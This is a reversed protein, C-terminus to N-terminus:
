GPPVGREQRGTGGGTLVQRKTNRQPARGRCERKWPPSHTKKPPPPPDRPDPIPTDPVDKRWHQNWGWCQHRWVTHGQTLKEGERLRAEDRNGVGVGSLLPHYGGGELTSSLTSHCTSLVCHPEIRLFGWSSQPFPSALPVGVGSPHATHPRSLGPFSVKRCWSDGWRKQGLHGGPPLTECLLPVSNPAPPFRPELEPESTDESHSRSIMGGQAETEGGMLVGDDEQAGVPSHKAIVSPRPLDAPSPRQCPPDPPWVHRGM